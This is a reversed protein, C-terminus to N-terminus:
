KCTFVLSRKTSPLAVNGTMLYAGTSQESGVQNFGQPCIDNAQQYCDGITARGGCQTEYVQKGDQDSYLQRSVPRSACGILLLGLSLCVFRM